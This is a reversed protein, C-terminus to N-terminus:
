RAGEASVAEEGFVFLEAVLWREGERVLGVSVHQTVHEGVVQRSAPDVWSRRHTSRVTASAGRESLATVSVSDILATTTRQQAIAEPDIEGLLVAERLAGTTLSALGLLYADATRYDFNGYAIVFQSASAAVAESEEGRDALRTAGSWGSVIALALLLGVFGLLQYAAGRGGSV